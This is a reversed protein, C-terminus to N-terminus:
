CRNASWPIWCRHGTVSRGHLKDLDAGFPDPGYVCLNFTKGQGAPWETFRVFNFLLASKLRYESLNDAQVTHVPGLLGPLSALLAIVRLNM